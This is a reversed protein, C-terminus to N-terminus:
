HQKGSNTMYRTVISVTQALNPHTYVMGHMLSDIVNAYPVCEM